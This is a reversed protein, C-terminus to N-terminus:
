QQSEDGEGEAGIGNQASAPIHRYLTPISVGIAPAVERAADGDKAWSKSGISRL